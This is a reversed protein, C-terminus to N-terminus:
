NENKVILGIDAAVEWVEGKYIVKDGMKLEM